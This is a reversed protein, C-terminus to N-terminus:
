KEEKKGFLNTYGMMDLDFGREVDWKYPTETVRCVTVWEFPKPSARGDDDIVIFRDCLDEHSYICLFAPYIGLKKFEPDDIWGGKGDSMQVDKVWIM